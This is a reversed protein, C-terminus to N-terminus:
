NPYKWLRERGIWSYNMLSKGHFFIRRQSKHKQTKKTPKDWVPQILQGPLIQVRGSSEAPTPSRRGNGAGVDGVEAASHRLFTGTGHSSCDRTSQPRSVSLERCSVSQCSAIQGTPTRWTRENGRFPTCRCHGSLRVHSFATHLHHPPCTARWSLSSATALARGPRRPRKPATWRALYCM